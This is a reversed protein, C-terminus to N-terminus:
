YIKQIEVIAREVIEDKTTDNLDLEVPYDAEIGDDLHRDKTDIFESTSLSWYWGNALYGDAVNGSGGGTKQGVTFVNDMPDVCYVFTTAASYVYRDTLVAVPKLYKNESKAPRLTIPSKTFDDEGPGTKFREYGCYVPKDTFYSAFKAALEPYGGSNLRVDFILGKTDKLDNFITEIQSDSIEIEWSPIWLYGIKKDQNLVGWVVNIESREGELVKISSNIDKGIYNNAMIKIDFAADYGELINYEARPSDENRKDMILSSHGDKLSLTIQGMKEFFEEDSMETTITRRIQESLKKIDIKKYMLMAYKEKVLRTYEDFIALRGTKQAPSMFANECATLCFVLGFLIHAIYITKM